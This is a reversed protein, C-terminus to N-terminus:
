EQAHAVYPYDTSPMNTGMVATEEDDDVSWVPVSQLLTASGGVGIKIQEGEPVVFAVRSLVGDVEALGGNIGFSVAQTAWDQSTRKLTKVKIGNGAPGNYTILLEKLDSPGLEMAFKWLIDNSIVAGQTQNETSIWPNQISYVPRPGAFAITASKKELGQRVWASLTERFTM